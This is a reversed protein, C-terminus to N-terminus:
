DAVPLVPQAQEAPPTATPAPQAQEPADIPAPEATLPAEKQMRALQEEIADFLELSVKRKSAKNVWHRSIYAQMLVRIELRSEMVGQANKMRFIRVLFRHRTLTVKNQGFMSGLMSSNHRGHRVWDTTIIGSRSDISAVPLNLATMADITASFLKGPAAQYARADLAVAKGAVAKTYEKPLLKSDSQTAVEQEDPLELDARLEPPVDLPARRQAKSGDQHQKAYAPENKGADNDWFLQPMDGSCASLSMLLISLLLTARINMARCEFSAPQM